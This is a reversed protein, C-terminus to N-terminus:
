LIKSIDNADLAWNCIFKNFTTTRITKEEIRFIQYSSARIDRLTEPPGKSNSIVLSMYMQIRNYPWSSSCFCSNFFSFLELITLHKSQHTLIKILRSTMPMSTPAPAAM